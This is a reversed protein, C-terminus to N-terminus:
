KRVGPKGPQPRTMSHVNLGQADKRPGAPEDRGSKSRAMQQQLANPKKQPEPAPAAPKKTVQPQAQTQAPKPKPVPVSQTTATAPKTVPQIRKVGVKDREAGAAMAQPSAANAPAVPTTSAQTTPSKNGQTLAAGVVAAGTGIGATIAAARNNRVTQSLNKLRDLRTAAQNAAVTSVGVRADQASQSGRQLNALFTGPPAVRKSSKAGQTAADTTVDAKKLRSLIKPIYKTGKVIQQGVATAPRSPLLMSGVGLLKGTEAARPYFKEYDSGLGLAGSGAAKLQDVTKNVYYNGPEKKLTGQPPNAKLYKSRSLYNKVKKGADAGSLKAFKKRTEKAPDYSDEEENLAAVAQKEASANVSLGHRNNFGEDIKKKAIIKKAIKHAKMINKKEMPPEDGTSKKVAAMGIAYPNAKAEKISMIKKKLASQDAPTVEKKPQSVTSISSAQGEAYPDTKPVNEEEMPKKKSRLMKFDQATLKDKEPEHVDLKQQNPHLGESLVQKYAADWEGQKEHPLAKRDTVGFKENVLRVANREAQNKKMVEQVAGILPDNKNLM